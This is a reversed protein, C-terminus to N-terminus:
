LLSVDPFGEGYKVIVPVTVDAPRLQPVDHHVHPLLQGLLLTLEQHLLRVNVAPKSTRESKKM